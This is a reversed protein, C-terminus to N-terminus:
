LRTEISECSTHNSKVSAVPHYKTSEATAKFSIAYTVEILEPEREVKGEVTSIDGINDLKSGKNREEQWWKGEKQRWNGKQGKRGTQAM